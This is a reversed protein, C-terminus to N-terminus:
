DGPPGTNQEVPPPPAFLIQLLAPAVARERLKAPVDAPSLMGDETAIGDILDLPVTELYRNEVTVGRPADELLESAGRLRGPDGRLAAPLLKDLLAAAYCPVDAERAALALAYSGTKNVLDSESISDAGMIVLTSRSVLAPLAADSVLTVRIGFGAVESAFAVGELGPRSESVLVGFERGGGAAAHLIAKVSESGSTTAVTAGDEVLSAGERGLDEILTEGFEWVRSCEFSVAQKAADPTLGSLVIREVSSLVSGVLNVVPAMERQAELLERCATVLDDWFAGVDPAESAAMVGSLTRAASRALESAGSRSDRAIEEFM